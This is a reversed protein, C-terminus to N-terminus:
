MRGLLEARKAEYEEQTILGAEKLANLELLKGALSESAEQAAPLGQQQTAREPPTSPLNRIVDALMGRTPSLDGGIVVRSGSGRPYAAVTIRATRNALLLYLIGPLLFFLMLFCGVCADAGEDRAFTATRETRAQLSWGNRTMWEVAGELVPEPPWGTEIGIQQERHIQALRERNQAAQAM